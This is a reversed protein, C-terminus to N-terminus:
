VLGVTTACFQGSALVSDVTAEDPSLVAKYEAELGPPLYRFIFLDLWTGGDAIVARIDFIVQPMKFELHQVSSSVVLLAPNQAM